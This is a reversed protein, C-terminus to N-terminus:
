RRPSSILKAVTIRYGDLDSLMIFREWREEQPLVELTIGAAQVGAAVQEIHQRKM